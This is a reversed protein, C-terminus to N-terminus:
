AAASVDSKTAMSEFHPTRRLTTLARAANKKSRRQQRVEMCVTFICATALGGAYLYFTLFPM